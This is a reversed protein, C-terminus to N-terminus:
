ASYLNRIRVELRAHQRQLGRGRARRSSTRQSVAGRRRRRRCEGGRHGLLRACLRFVSRFQGLGLPLERVRLPGRSRRRRSLHVRARPERRREQGRGPRVGFPRAGHLRRVAGGGQSRRGFASWERRGHAGLLDPHGRLQERERKRERLQNRKRECHQRGQLRLVAAPHHSAPSLRHVSGGLGLHRVWDFDLWRLRLQPHVGPAGVGADGGGGGGGWPLVHGCGSSAHESNLYVDRRGFRMAVGARPFFTLTTFCRGGGQAVVPGQSGLCRSKTTRWPATSTRTATLTASAARRARPTSTLATSPPFSWPPCPPAGTHTGRRVAATFHKTTRNPGPTSCETSAHSRPRSILSGGVCVCWGSPPRGRAGCRQDFFLVCLVCPKNSSFVPVAEQFSARRMFGVRCVFVYRSVFGRAGGRVTGFNSGELLVWQGGATSAGTGSSSAEYKDWSALYSAVNPPSYSVNAAYVNSTQGGVTVALVHGSGVGQAMFCSIQSHEVSVECGTARYRDEEGPPGYTVVPADEGASPGFEAGAVVLQQGGSTTAGSVGAGTVARADSAADSLPKVVPPAYSTALNNACDGSSGSSDGNPRACLSSGAQGGVVLRWTLNAGVGAATTCLVEANSTLVHCNSATYKLVGGDGAEDNYGWPGGTVPGYTVQLAPAANQNAVSDLLDAFNPGFNTGRLLVFDGGSTDLNFVGRQTLQALATASSDADLADIRPAAYGTHALQASSSSQAVAAVDAAGVEVAWWLAAGVGTPATCTVQTGAQAVQVNACTFTASSDVGGGVSAVGTGVYKFQVQAAAAALAYVHASAGCAALSACAYPPFNTGTLTVTAGGTTDMSTAGSVNAITPPAYSTTATSVVSWPGGPAGGGSFHAGSADVTVNWAHRTGVGPAAVCRIETNSGGHLACGQADYTLGDMGNSYTATVVVNSGGGSSGCPGFNTGTLVVLGNSYPDAWNHGGLTPLADPASCEISAIVATAVSSASSCLSAVSNSCTDAGNDSAYNVFCLDATGETVAGDAYAYGYAACVCAYDTSTHFYYGNAASAPLTVNRLTAVGTVTADNADAVEVTVLAMTELGSTDTAAVALVYQTQCEFDLVAATNDGGVVLDGDDASLTFWDTGNLLAFSVSDGVDDDSAAVGGITTGRAAAESVVFRQGRPVSPAEDVDVVTVSATASATLGAEDMVVVSLKYAVIAEYNLVGTTTVEGSASVNFPGPECACATSGVAPTASCKASAWAGSATGLLACNLSTSVAPEGSAWNTYGEGHADCGPVEDWVFTDDKDVDRLGIWLYSASGAYNSVL